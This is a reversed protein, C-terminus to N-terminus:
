GGRTVELADSIRISPHAKDFKLVTAANLIEIGVLSDAAGYDLFVNANVQVTTVQESEETLYIYAADVEPDYTIKM